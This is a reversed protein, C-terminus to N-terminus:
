SHRRTNHKKNKNALKKKKRGKMLKAAKKTTRRIRYSLFKLLVGVVKFGTKAYENKLKEFGEKSLKVLEVDGLAEVTASRPSGDILALEGFFEGETLSTILKKRTKNEKFIRVVGKNIIYMGDGPENEKFIAQGSGYKKEECIKALTEIDDSDFDRYIPYETLFYLDAM